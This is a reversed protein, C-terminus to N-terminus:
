EEPEIEAIGLGLDNVQAGIASHHRSKLFRFDFTRLIVLNAEIM